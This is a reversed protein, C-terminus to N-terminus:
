RSAFLIGFPTITCRYYFLSGSFRWNDVGGLTLEGDADTESGVLPPPLLTFVSNQEGRAALAGLTVVSVNISGCNNSSIPFSIFYSFPSHSVITGDAYLNNMFTPINEEGGVTGKTLVVPGFGVISDM